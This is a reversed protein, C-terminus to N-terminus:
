KKLPEPRPASRRRAQVARRMADIHKLLLPSEDYRALEVSIKLTRLALGGLRHRKVRVAGVVGNHFVAAETVVQSWRGIVEQDDRLSEADRGLARELNPWAAIANIAEHVADPGITAAPSLRRVEDPPLLAFDPIRARIARLQSVVEEPTLFGVPTETSSSM